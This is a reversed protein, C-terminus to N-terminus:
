TRPQPPGKGLYKAVTESLRRRGPVPVLVKESFRGSPNNGETAQRNLITQLAVSFIQTNVAEFASIEIM